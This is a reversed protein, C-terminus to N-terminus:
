RVQGAEPQLLPCFEQTLPGVLCVGAARIASRRALGASVSQNRSDTLFRGSRACGPTPRQITRGCVRQVRGGEPMLAAM